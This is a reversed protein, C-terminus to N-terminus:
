VLMEAHRSTLCRQLCTCDCLFSSMHCCLFNIRGVSAKIPRNQPRAGANELPKHRILISINQIAAVLFDQIEMRWLRRWRARKYGYRTSWAFSRESLDQRKKIDRMATPTSAEKRLYDLEDQRLHRKLSRGDKARTCPDRLPCQACAGKDARYEYQNRNKYYHHKRLKHGAPCTFTDSAPDYQFAEKPFIGERRGSGKQTKELSAM